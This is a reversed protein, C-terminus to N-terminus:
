KAGKKQQAKFEEARIKMAETDLEGILFAFAEADYGDLGIRDVAVLIDRWPIRGLFDAGVPRCSDLKWFMDLVAAAHPGIKPEDLYWQPM